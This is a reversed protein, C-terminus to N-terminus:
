KKERTIMHLRARMSRTRAHGHTHNPACETVIDGIELGLSLGLKVIENVLMVVIAMLHEHHRRVLLMALSILLIAGLISGVLVWATDFGKGVSLTGELLTCRTRNREVEDWAEELIVKYSYMGPERRLGFPIEWRFRNSGAVTRELPFAQDAWLVFATPNSFNIPLADVDVLQAEFRVFETSAEVQGTSAVLAAM